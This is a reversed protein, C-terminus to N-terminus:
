NNWFHPPPGQASKDGGGRFYFQILSLAQNNATCKGFLERDGPLWRWPKHCRGCTLRCSWLVLFRWSIQEHFQTFQFFLRVVPQSKSFDANKSVLSAFFRTFGLTKKDLSSPEIHYGMNQCRLFPISTSITFAHSFHYMLWLMFVKLVRVALQHYTLRQIESAKMRGKRSRFLRNKSVWGFSRPISVWRSGSLCTCKICKMENLSM